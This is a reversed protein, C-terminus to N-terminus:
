TKLAIALQSAFLERVADRTTDLAPRMYPQARMGKWTMTYPYPGAGPSESGRVGTGYEVYGAYPAGATIKVVSSVNSEVSGGASISDKLAGTDVPCIAQAENVILQSAAEVSASVAPTVRGSIFTGTFESRPKYSVTATLFTNM